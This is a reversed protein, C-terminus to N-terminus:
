NTQSDFAMNLTGRTHYREQIFPCHIRLPEHYSLPRKEVPTQQLGKTLAGQERGWGGVITPPATGKLFM